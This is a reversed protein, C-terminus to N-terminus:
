SCVLTSGAAPSREKRDRCGKKKIKEIKEKEKKKRKQKTKKEKKKKRQGHDGFVAVVTDNTLGLADLEALM